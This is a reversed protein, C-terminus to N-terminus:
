TQAVSGVVAQQSCSLEQSMQNLQQLQDAIQEQLQTTQHDADALQRDHCAKLGDLEAQLLGGQSMAAKVRAEVGARVQATM